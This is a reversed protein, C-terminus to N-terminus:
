LMSRVVTVTQAGLLNAIDVIIPEGATRAEVLPEQEREKPQEVVM